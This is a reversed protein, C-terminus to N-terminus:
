KLFTADGTTSTTFFKGALAPSSLSVPETGPDPLDGPPPCPLGSWYKQRSFGLSLPAQCAVTWLTAFLQVPSFCSLICAGVCVEYSSFILVCVVCGSPPGHSSLTLVLACSRRTTATRCQLPLPGLPSLERGLDCCGWSSPRRQTFADSPLCVSVVIM